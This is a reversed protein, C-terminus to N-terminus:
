QMVDPRPSTKPIQGIKVGERYIIAFFDNSDPRRFIWEGDAKDDKFQGRALLEGSEDWQLVPGNKLGHRYTTMARRTGHAHWLTEEGHLKGDLFSREERKRGVGDWVVWTGSRVGHEWHDSARLVGNPYWERAPGHLKDDEDVCFASGGRSGALTELRASAGCEIQDDARAVGLGGFIVIAVAFARIRM